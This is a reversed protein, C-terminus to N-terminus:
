RYDLEVRVLDVPKSFAAKLYRVSPRRPAYAYRVPVRYDYNKEGSAFPKVAAVVPTWLVGDDSEFLSINPETDEEYAYIRFDMPVGPSHYVVYGGAIGHLRSFAEKFSRFEGSRVEVGVSEYLAALNRASDSYTLYQVEVPGVVNSAPSMGSENRAFVRYYYSKGVSATADSFLPFGPTDIDDVGLALQQWPGDASESREIDYAAAGMSGRWSFAPSADFPLLRPARPVAVPPITRGQIAFAKDRVVRLVKREDYLAGDDFGPWHYARYLGFGAPESHHYFGGNEHHRRLSWILAGPIRQEGIVYDLVAKFGSTSIFGFEGLLLPKRGDVAAVTRGLSALMAIPSSEYHHTSVLDFAPEELAYLRTGSGQEQGTLVQRGDILLHNPDISKIYRGIEVGWADPNELENGTEWALIAKDDRYRVGTITNKRNLVYEITRKFDTILQPDTWFADPSKGRFAAYDPRGGMWQWNNVLPIIVRVGFEGALALALDMTRFAEENFVGPAEVYTVSEPPFNRNRVPITYARVVRGGMEVVTQYLDRLEFETPLGYPNTEGFAMEDEVYLLTPVNFSIFRFAQDGDMLSAGDVTIFRAFESQCIAPLLLLCAALLWPFRSGSPSRPSRTSINMSLRLPGPKPIM